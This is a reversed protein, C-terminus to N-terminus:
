EALYAKRIEENVMMAKGDGEMIIQGTQIVYAYNAISLAMHANQEVLLATIGQKRLDVIIEFVEDVIRPSLGMSPEDLLILKPGSILARALAVMQQEGGSLTGAEQKRREKLRPFRDFMEEIKGAVVRKDQISYGGLILNDNVSLEPFVQRGEPVQAIGLKAMDYPKRNTIDAGDFLITGKTAKLIGSITKLTTTKGAGNAGIMAVIQGEQIDLSLGKLVAINGYGSQVGKVSLLSM